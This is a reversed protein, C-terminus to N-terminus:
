VSLVGDLLLCIVHGRAGQEALLAGEAMTGIAPKSGGRM